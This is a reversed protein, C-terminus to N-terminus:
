CEKQKKFIQDLTQKKGADVAIEEGKICLDESEQFTVMNRTKTAKFDETLRSFPLRIKGTRSYMCDPSFNRSIGMWKKLSATINKEM